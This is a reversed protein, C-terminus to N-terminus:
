MHLSKRRKMRQHRFGLPSRKCTEGMAGDGGVHMRKADGARFQQRHLRENIVIIEDLFAEAIVPTYSWRMIIMASSM